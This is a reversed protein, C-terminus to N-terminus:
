KRRGLKKLDQRIFFSVVLAGACAAWVLAIVFVFANICAIM